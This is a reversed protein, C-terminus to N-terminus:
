LNLNFFYKLNFIKGKWIDEPPVVRKFMNGLSILKAEEFDLGFDVNLRDWPANLQKFCTNGTVPAIYQFLKGPILIGSILNGNEDKKPNSLFKKADRMNEILNEELAHSGLTESVVIDTKKIENMKIESTHKAMFTINNVRNNSALLKSLEIIEEDDLIKSIIQDTNSYM